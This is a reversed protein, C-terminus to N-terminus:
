PKGFPLRKGAATEIECAGTWAPQKGDSSGSMAGTTATHELEDAYATRAAEDFACVMRMNGPMSQSYDCMAEHLGTVAHEITFGRMLPHPQAATAPACSRLEGAFALLAPDVVTGIVAPAQANATTAVLLCASALLM